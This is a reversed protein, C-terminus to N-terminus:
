ATVEAPTNYINTGVDENRESNLEGDSSPLVVPPEPYAPLEVVFTAGTSGRDRESEVWVRGGHLEVIQKVVALGVGTSNEGGTPQASLRQFFQFALKKDEDSLGPGEDQVSFRLRDATQTLRVRITSHFPAYKVANSLVNEVVQFLRNADGQLWCYDPMQLDISQLKREASGALRTVCHSVTLSLNVRSLSLEMTGLERAAGDLLEKVMGLVWQGQENIKTLLETHLKDANPRSEETLLLIDAYGMIATLPNKMDHSVISLVKTKFRNAEDLVLLSERLQSNTIETNRAQEASVDLQRELEENSASLLVNVQQLQRTREDVLLELQHNQREMMEQKEREQEIMAVSLAEVEQVKTALQKGTQIFRVVLLSSTAVPMTIYILCVLLGYLMLPMAANHLRFGLVVIVSCLTLASGIILMWKVPRQDQKAAIILRIVEIALVSLVADVVLTAIARTTTTLLLSQVVFLPVFFAYFRRPIRGLFARYVEALLASTAALLCASQVVALIPIADTPLQRYMRLYEAAAFFAISVSYQGFSLGLRESPSFVFLAIHFVGLVLATVIALMYWNAMISQEMGYGILRRNAHYIVATFGDDELWYLLWNRFSAAATNSYHIALVHTTGPTVPLVVPVMNPQFPEETVADTSPKGFAAAFHGDIYIESAGWHQLSLVLPLAASSSDLQFTLRFWGAGSWTTHAIHNNGNSSTEPAYRWFRQLSPITLTQGTYAHLSDGSLLLVPPADSGSPQSFALMPWACLLGLLVRLRVQTAVLNYLPLRYNM